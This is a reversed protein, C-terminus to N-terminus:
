MYVDGMVSHTGESSMPLFTLCPKYNWGQYLYDNLLCKDISCTCIIYETVGNGSGKEQQSKDHLFKM